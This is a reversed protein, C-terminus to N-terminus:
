ARDESGKNEVDDERLQIMFEGKSGGSAAHRAGIREREEVVGRGKEGILVDEEEKVTKRSKAVRVADDDVVLFCM